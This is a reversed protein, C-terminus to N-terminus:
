PRWYRFPEELNLAELRKGNLNKFVSMKNLKDLRKLHEEFNRDAEPSFEGSKGYYLAQDDIDIRIHPTKFYLWEKVAM